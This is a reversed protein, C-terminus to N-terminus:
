EPPAQWREKIARHLQEAVDPVDGSMSRFEKKGMVILQMPSTATVTATRHTPELLAIEGFFDGPGLEAVHEQGRTVMASGEEIVFFEHAFDGEKVLIDGEEITIEDAWQALKKRDKRRLNRFLPVDKLRAADM